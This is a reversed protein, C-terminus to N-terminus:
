ELWAQWYKACRMKKLNLAAVAVTSFLAQIEDLTFNAFLRNAMDPQLPVLCNQGDPLVLQFGALSRFGGASQSLLASQKDELEEYCSELSEVTEDYLDEAVGVLLGMNDDLIACTVNLQQAHAVFSDRLSVDFFMYEM